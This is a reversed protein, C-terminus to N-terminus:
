DSFAERDVASLTEAHIIGFGKATKAGRDPVSVGVRGQKRAPKKQIKEPSLISLLSEPEPVCKKKGEGAVAGASLVSKIFLLVNRLILARSALKM